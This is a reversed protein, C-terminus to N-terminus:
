QDSGVRSPGALGGHQPYGPGYGWVEVVTSRSPGALGGHQPYGSGYRPNAETVANNAPGPQSPRPALAIGAAVVFTVAVAVLGVALGRTRPQTTGVSADLIGM